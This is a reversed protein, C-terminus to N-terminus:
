LSWFELPAGVSGQYFTPRRAWPPPEDAVRGSATSHLACPEYALAERSRLTTLGLEANSKNPKTTNGLDFFLVTAGFGRHEFGYDPRSNFYLLEPPPMTLALISWEWWVSRRWFLLKRRRHAQITTAPALHRASVESVDGIAHNRM